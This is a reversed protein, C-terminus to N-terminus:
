YDIDRKISNNKSHEYIGNIKTLFAVCRGLRDSITFLVGFYLM